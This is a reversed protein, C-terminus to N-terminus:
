PFRRQLGEMDAQVFDLEKKTDVLEMALNFVGSRLKAIQVQQVIFVLGLIICTIGLIVDTMM